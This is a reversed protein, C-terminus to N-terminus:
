FQKILDIAKEVSKQPLECKGYNCVYILNKNKQYRNQLLPVMSETTSGAVIINPLYKGQLSRNLNKADSGTIAVEYYPHTFNLMLDLWNSYSGPHSIIQPQISKLMQESRTKYDSKELLESLKFLNKAMVSNSAPIVNDMIEITRTILKRDKNSKFYFMSSDGSFDEICIECLSEALELWTEDFTIEYLKIFAEITFAYDELYANISSKGNKYSRQLRGNEIILNTRIFNANKLGTNLYDENGLATYADLYGTLMLANWSTLSKDDLGPKSRSNRHKKLKAMWS